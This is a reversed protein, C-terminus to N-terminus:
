VTRETRAVIHAADAEFVFEADVGRGGADHAIAVIVLADAFQDARGVAAERRHERHHVIRADIDAVLADLDALPRRLLREAIRPIAHLRGACARGVLVGHGDHLM